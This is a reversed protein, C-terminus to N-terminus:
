LEDNKMEEANSLRNFEDLAPETNLLETESGDLARALVARQEERLKQATSDTIILQVEPVKEAILEIRSTGIYRQDVIISEEWPILVPRLIRDFPFIASVFIGEEGTGIRMTWSFRHFIGSPDIPSAIRMRQAGLSWRPAINKALYHKELRGWFTTFRFLLALLFWGVLVASSVLAIEFIPMPQGAVVM